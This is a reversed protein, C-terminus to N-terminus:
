QARDWRARAARQARQSSTMGNVRIPQYDAWDHIRYGNQDPVWLGREVLQEADRPRARTEHLLGFTILGDTEQEGVLLMGGLWASLLRPQKDPLDHFKQHRYLGTDIRVWKVIPGVESRERHM